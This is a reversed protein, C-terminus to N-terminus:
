IVNINEIVEVRKATTNIDVVSVVPNPLGAVGKAFARALMDEGMAQNGTKQGNIPVGGGAQNMASLIPAFMSTAKATLVSEGNSLMAPISDSTGTGAGIVDGGTAFKASKVTKIATAINALVTAVTTAIAAINQPFGIKVAEAVGAAIAKGTNIAIEALALVKSAVAMAKNEEGIAEMLSILGGTIDSMAQLKSQEIEVEKDRLDKKADLYDNEAQLRRLNFEELTEGEMQQIADLEAKRQEMQIRLIEKENGYAQEMATEFRVKIADMQKQSTENAYRATEDSMLKEYKQVIALKMQETLTKDQLEAERQSQLQQMRLEHEQRTGEKVGELQLQILKQQREVERSIAEDNLKDLEAEKQKEKAKITGNIAERAKATLDQETQLRKKLDEIERDYTLITRQREAELDADVISVKAIADQKQKEKDKIISLIENQAEETLDKETTLRKKLLEIEVDYSKAVQERQKKLYEADDVSSVSIMQKAKEKEEIISLIEKKSEETLDEETKLREKLAAIEKDYMEAVKLQQTENNMKIIEVLADEMERVSALEKDTLALQKEKGEKSISNLKNQLEIQRTTSSETKDYLEKVDDSFTKLDDITSSSIGLKSIAEDASIAGTAIDKMSQRVEDTVETFGLQNAIRREQLSIEENMLDREMDFAKKAAEQREKTSKTVDESVMKLKEIEARNAARKMGLMTEAKEIDILSKKLDGALQWENKMEEGIGKFANRAKSEFSTFDLKILDILADGLMAVRDMFVDMVAGLKAMSVQFFELGKQSRTFAAALATIAAVIALVPISLMATGILRLVGATRTGAHAADNFGRVMNVSWIKAFSQAVIGMSQMTAGGNKIQTYALAISETYNGINMKQKVYEDSNRQIYRTNEDIQRNLEQRIAYASEEEDTLNRVAERLAKNAAEAEAISKVNAGLLGEVESLIDANSKQTKIQSTVQKELVKIATKYENTKVKAATIRENYEQQTMTGEKVEKKYRAEADKIEDIKTKYEGIKKIAEQYEVKIELIKTEESAM